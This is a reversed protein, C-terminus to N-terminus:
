TYETIRLLGNGGAAAGSTAHTGSGGAGGGYLGGAGGSAGAAGGQGGAGFFTAGGMGGITLTTSAALSPGGAQGDATIDGTGSGSAGGAGGASSTTSGVGGPSGGKALPATGGDTGTKTYSTDGGSHSGTAGGAGVAVTHAGSGVTTIKSASYAGGGGGGSAGSAAANQSSGGGAQCEVYATNTGSTPTYSTTGNLINRIGLLCGAYDGTVAVVAGTRGFVSSVAGTPVIGEFAFITDLADTFLPPSVSTASSSSAVVACTLDCYTSHDTFASVELVVWKTPDQRSWLRLFWPLGWPASAVAGIQLWTKFSQPASPSTYSVYLHAVTNINTTDAQVNGAGPDTGAGAASLFTMAFTQGPEPLLTFLGANADTTSPQSFIYNTTITGTYDPHAQNIVLVYALVCYGTTVPPQMSNGGSITGAIASLNGSADIVIADFRDVLPDAAAITVTGGTSTATINGVLANGAAVLVTQNPTSQASVTLGTIPATKSLPTTM